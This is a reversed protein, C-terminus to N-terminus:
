LHRKNDISHNSPGLLYTIALSKSNSCVRKSLFDGMKIASSLYLIMCVSKKKYIRGNKFQLELQKFIESEPNAMDFLPQVVDSPFVLFYIQIM